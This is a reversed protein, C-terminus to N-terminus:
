CSRAYIYHISVPKGSYSCYNANQLAAANGEQSTLVNGVSAVNKNQSMINLKIWSMKYSLGPLHQVTGATQETYTLTYSHFFTRTQLCVHKELTLIDYHQSM